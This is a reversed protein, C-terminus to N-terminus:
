LASTPRATRRRRPAFVPRRVKEDVARPGTSSEVDLSAYRCGHPVEQERRRIPGRGTLRTMWSALRVPNNLVYGYVEELGEASRIVHDHCRTQWLRGSWGCPWSRNTSKGKFRDVFTLVSRGDEQPGAVFHLHDPMLCYAGVWCGYEGRMETLLDITTRCLVPNGAFPRGRYARITILVANGAEAYIAADLPKNRPTTQEIL